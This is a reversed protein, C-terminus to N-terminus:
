NTEPTSRKGLINENFIVDFEIGDPDEFMVDIKKVWEPDLGREKINAERTDDYCVIKFVHFRDILEKPITCRNFINGLVSVEYNADRSFMDEWDIDKSFEFMAKRYAKKDGSTISGIIRSKIDEVDGNFYKWVEKDCDIFDVSDQESLKRIVTSKGVGIKGFFMNNKKLM